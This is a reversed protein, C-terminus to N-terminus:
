IVKGDAEQFPAAEGRIWKMDTASSRVRFEHSWPQLMAASDQLLGALVERDDEYIRQVVTSFDKLATQRDIGVLDRIGDSIFSFRASGDSQLHFQYVAGPISDTIEQLRRKSGEVLQDAQKRMTIDLITGDLFLPNEHTDFIARGKEYVWRPEGDAHVIRYELVYPRHQEVGAKVDQEVMATDDSHIISAFSRKRNHIFDAAPYGSIEEIAGSIFTMTWDSDILCRYVAGPINGVLTRFQKESEQLEATREAVRCELQDNLEILASERVELKEAMEVFSRALESIEDNGKVEVSVDLRGRTIQQASDNLRVIPRTIRRSVLMAIIILGVLSVGLLVTYHVAQRHVFGLAEDEDILTALSWGASPIPAYFLWRPRESGWLVMRTNGSEGEIMQDVWM